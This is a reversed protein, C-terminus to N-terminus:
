SNLSKMKELNEKYVLFRTSKKDRAQDGYGDWHITQKTKALQKEEGLKLAQDRVYQVDEESDNCIYVSEPDCHDVFSGIFDIVHPNNLAELKNFSEENMRSKLLNEYNTSM